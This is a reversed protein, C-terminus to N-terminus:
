FFEAADAVSAVSNTTPNLNFIYIESATLVLQKSIAFPSGIPNTKSTASTTQLKPLLFIQTILELSNDDLRQPVFVCLSNNHLRWPM